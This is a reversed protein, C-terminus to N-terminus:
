FIGFDGVYIGVQRLFIVDNQVLNQRAVVLNAGVVGCIVTPAQGQALGSVFVCGGVDIFGM